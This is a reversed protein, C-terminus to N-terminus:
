VDVRMRSVSQAGDMLLSLGSVTLWQVPERAQRQEGDVIKKATPLLYLFHVEGLTSNELLDLAISLSVTGANGSDSACERNTSRSEKRAKQIDHDINDIPTPM